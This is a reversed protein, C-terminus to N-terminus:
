QLHREELEEYRLCKITEDFWYIFFKGAFGVIFKYQNFVTSAVDKESPIPNEDGPHSHMIGWTDDEHELLAVPDLIFSEKPKPSLNKCPVFINKDTIIGCAEKPYEAQAHRSMDEILTKFIKM